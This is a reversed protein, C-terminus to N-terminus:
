PIVGRCARARRGVSKAVSSSASQTARADRLPVAAQSLFDAMADATRKEIRPASRGLDTLVDLATRLKVIMTVWSPYPAVLPVTHYVLKSDAWRSHQELYQDIMPGVPVVLSFPQTGANTLDIAAGGRVLSLQFRNEDTTADALVIAKAYYVTAVALPAPLIGGGQATLEVADGDALGHGALELLDSAADVVAIQRAPRVLAGRPVGCGFVDSRTAYAVM